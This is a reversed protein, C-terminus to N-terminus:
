VRERCSARGIEAQTYITSTYSFTFEEIHFFIYCVLTHLLIFIIFFNFVPPFSRFKERAFFLWYVILLAAFIPFLKSLNFSSVKQLGPGWSLFFASSILLLLRLPSNTIELRDSTERATM